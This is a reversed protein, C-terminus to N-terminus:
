LRGSAAVMRNYLNYLHDGYGSATAWTGTLDSWSQVRGRFRLRLTGPLLLPAPLTDRGVAPDVYIRLLQVQARVGTRADPFNFGTECTDCAGVGAFNNDNPDVMSETFEFWGTELISQAFAVDGRVGNANGEEIYMRALADLPVSLKPEGGRARVYNALDDASLLTPGLIPSAASRAVRHFRAIGEEAEALRRRADALSARLEQVRQIAEELADHAEERQRTLEAVRRELESLVGQLFEFVRVEHTGATELIHVSRGVDLVEDALTAAELTANLRSGGGHVYAEAAVGALRRRYEDVVLRAGDVSAQAAALEAGLAVVRADLVRRREELRAIEPQTRELEARADARQRVFKTGSDLPMPFPTQAVAADAFAVTGVLVLVLAAGFRRPLDM